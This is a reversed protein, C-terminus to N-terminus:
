DLLIKLSKASFLRLSENKLAKLENTFSNKAFIIAIDFEINESKCDDLLKNLESKKIKSETYKCTGVIIKGSDTKAVIPLYIKESWYQGYQKIPDQTFINKLSSLALEEFIFDSFDSERSEFKEKFEEYNGDKIGKYIPSIFAFWFRLFPNTFLLKKAIKSDNRKGLIFNQSSDLEIIGKECLNDVCKMGEEFSVHARKFANTTKRDGLAIGTLIANDVHYGGVFHNIESRLYNYNNLIHKEILELIPIKTDIQIDLGGFITFYKIATQMSELSNKECFIKFQEKINKDLIIM